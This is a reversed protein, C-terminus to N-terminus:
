PCKTLGLQYDWTGSNVLVATGEVGEYNGTGSAVTFSSEVGSDYYYFGELKLSDQVSFTFTVDCQLGNAEKKCEGSSSGINSTAGDMKLDAGRWMIVNGEEEVNMHTVSLKKNAIAACGTGSVESPDSYYGLLTAISRKLAANEMKLSEIVSDTAVEVAGRLPRGAGADAAPVDIFQSTPLAGAVQFGFFVSVVATATIM